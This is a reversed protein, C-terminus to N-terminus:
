AARAPAAPAAQRDTAASATMRRVAECVLATLLLLGGLPHPGYATQSSANPGLCALAGAAFAAGSALLLGRIWLPWRDRWSELSAYALTPAVLIYGGGETAPGCVTMWCAGLGLALNLVELAPRRALWRAAMCVAAIGAAIGLQIAVYGNYSVPLKYCRILLWLDRYGEDLTWQTRDDICLSTWWNGYQRAVWWSDQLLFPLALGAVLAALFRPLLRRPFTVIFLLALAIPYIKLLCAGAIFVAAWNWREQGAAATGALILGTLLPNAQASNITSIAMPIVLLFVWARQTPTWTPPAHVRLWWVLGGLFAAANIGRWLLGGVATPTLALSAFLANVLPSYRCTASTVQYLDAGHLWNLGAAEFFPKYCDHSNPQAVTRVAVVGLVIAWVVLAMRVVSGRADPPKIVESKM